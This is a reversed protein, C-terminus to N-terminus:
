LAALEAGCRECYWETPLNMAGCEGCKLTRDVSGAQPTKGAAEKEVSAAGGVGAGTLEDEDLIADVMGTARAAAPGQEEDETVSKLFELEDTFATQSKKGRGGGKSKPAPVEVPPLEEEEADEVDGDPEGQDELAALVGELEEIEEEADGLGERITVLEELIGSKKTRWTDEDFEGVAHRLEAEALEKSKAEEQRKLGEFTTRHAELAEEIQDVFRQLKANVKDLRKQYDSEVRARVDAPTKDAAMRLRELWQEIRRREALLDKIENTTKDRKAM